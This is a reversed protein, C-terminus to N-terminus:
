PLLIAWSQKRYNVLNTLCSTVDVNRQQARPTLPAKSSIPIVQILEESLGDIVQNVIALRRKPMSGKQVTDVYRRNDSSKGEIDCVDMPHGYEVEVIANKYLVSKAPKKALKLINRLYHEKAVQERRSLSVVYTQAPRSRDLRVDVVAWRHETMGTFKKTMFIPDFRSPTGPLLVEDIRDHTETGLVTSDLVGLATDQTLEVYEIVIM